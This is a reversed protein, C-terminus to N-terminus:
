DLGKQIEGLTILPADPHNIGECRAATEEWAKRNKVNELWWPFTRCQKPRVSYIDCRREKLFICDYNDPDEKLSRKGQILHTYKKIFEAESISLHEAIATIEEDSVWVYGPAGTCCEGCGTCKFRLGDKYWPQSM